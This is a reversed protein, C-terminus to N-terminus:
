VEFKLDKTDRAHHYVNFIRVLKLDEYVMYFASYGEVVLRRIDPLDELKACSYPFVSLDEMRDYIANIIRDVYFPAEATLYDRIGKVDEHASPSIDIEYVPM